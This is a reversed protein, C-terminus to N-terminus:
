LQLYKNVITAIRKVLMQKHVFIVRKRSLPTRKSAIERLYKINSNLYNKENNSHNIDKNLLLNLVIERLIEAYVQGINQLFTVRESRNFSLFFNLFGPVNIELRKSM